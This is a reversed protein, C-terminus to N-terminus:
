SYQQILNGFFIIEGSEKSFGSLYSEIPRSTHVLIIQNKKKQKGTPKFKGYKIIENM